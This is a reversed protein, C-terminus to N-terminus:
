KGQRKKYEERARVILEDEIKYLKMVQKPGIVEEFILIYNKRVMAMNITNDLRAKMLNNIEQKTASQMDVKECKVHCFNKARNYERYVPAFKDFQEDTLKLEEKLIQLRIDLLEKKEQMKAKQEASMQPKNQASQELDQAFSIGTVAVLMLMSMVISKMIKDENISM